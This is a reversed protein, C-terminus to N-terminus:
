RDTCCGGLHEIASDLQGASRYIHALNGALAAVEWPAVSSDGAHELLHAGHQALHRAALYDGDHVYHYIWNCMNLATTELARNTDGRTRVIQQVIDNIEIRIVLEPRIRPGPRNAYDLISVSELAARTATAPAGPDRRPPPVDFAADALAGEPTSVACQYTLDAPIDRQAFYSTITLM